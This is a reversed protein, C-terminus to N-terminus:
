WELDDPIQFDKYPDDEDVQDKSSDYLYLVVEDKRDPIRNSIREAVQKPVLDYDDGQKVIALFGKNIQRKNEESVYIKKIKNQESFNYAVDGKQRQSNREILQKIQANLEKERNAANRAENAARDAQQKDKLAREAALKVEDTEVGQKVRVEKRHMQKQAKKLDKSSVLGAAKLQDQLSGGGKKKKAM